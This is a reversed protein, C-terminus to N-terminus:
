KRKRLQKMLEAMLQLVEQDLLGEAGKPELCTKSFKSLVGKEALERAARMEQVEMKNKAGKPELGSKTLVEKVLDKKGLEMAEIQDMALQEKRKEMM